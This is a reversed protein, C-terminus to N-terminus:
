KMYEFLETMRKNIEAVSMKKGDSKKKNNDANMTTDEESDVTGCRNLKDYAINKRDRESKRPTPSLKPPNGNMETNPEHNTNITLEPKNVLGNQDSPTQDQNESDQAEEKKQFESGHNETQENSSNNPM